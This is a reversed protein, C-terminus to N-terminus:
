ASIERARELFAYGEETTLYRPEPQCGWLCPMSDVVGWLRCILPRVEYVSCREDELYPCIGGRLGVREGGARCVRQWEVRGM